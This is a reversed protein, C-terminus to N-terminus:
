SRGGGLRSGRMYAEGEAREKGARRYISQVLGPDRASYRVPGWCTSPLHFWRPLCSLRSGVFEIGGPGAPYAQSRPSGGVHELPRQRDRWNAAPKGKKGSGGQRQKSFSPQQKLLLGSVGFSSSASCQGLHAGTTLGLRVTSRQRSAGEPAPAPAPAPACPTPPRAPGADAQCNSGLWIPRRLPIPYVPCTSQINNPDSPHVV